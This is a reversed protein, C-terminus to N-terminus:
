QQSRIVSPLGDLDPILATEASGPGESKRDVFVADLGCGSAGRVDAAYDNGVHVARSRDAGSLRLAEEFIEPDPKEYGVLASVVLGEFYDRIGLERLTDDLLIDWNSLVYLELGLGKLEELM